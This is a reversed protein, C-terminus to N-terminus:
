PRWIRGIGCPTPVRASLLLRTGNKKQHSDVYISRGLSESFKEQPYTVCNSPAFNDGIYLKQQSKYPMIDGENIPNQPVDQEVGDLYLAGFQFKSYGM